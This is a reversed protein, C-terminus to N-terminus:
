ASGCSVRHAITQFSVPEKLWQISHRFGKLQAVLRWRCIRSEPNLYRASFSSLSTFVRTEAGAQTLMQCQTECVLSTNWCAAASLPLCKLQASFAGAKAPLASM